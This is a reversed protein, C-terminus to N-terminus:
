LEQTELEPHGRAGQLARRPFALPNLAPHGLTPTGLAGGWAPQYQM